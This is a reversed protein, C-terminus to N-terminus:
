FADRDGYYLVCAPTTQQYNQISCNSEYVYSFFDPKNEAFQILWIANDVSINTIFIEKVQAYINKIEAINNLSLSAKLKDIIAQIIVQQRLSRSFDSTSKRSRAYKLATQGDFTQPGEAINFVTYSNNPGPYQNDYIPDKM